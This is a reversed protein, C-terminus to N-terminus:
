LELDPHRTTNLELISGDQSTVSPYIRHEINPFSQLATLEEQLSAGKLFLCKEVSPLQKDLLQLLRKISALARATVINAGMAPIVEVRENRVTTSLRLERIVTQLFVSKRQDSEVLTVQNDTIISLVLGPFGAGSGIDLIHAGTMPLFVALQASDLIHRHWADALTASSILNIRPQWKSLLALFAALQDITERSVNLQDVVKHDLPIQGLNGLTM